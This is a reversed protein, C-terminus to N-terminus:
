EVPAKKLGRKKDKIASATPAAETTVGHLERSFLALATLSEKNKMKSQLKLDDGAM